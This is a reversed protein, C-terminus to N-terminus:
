AFSFPALRGDAGLLFCPIGDAYSAGFLAAGVVDSGRGLRIMQQARERLAVLQGVLLGGDPVPLREPTGGDVIRVLQPEKAWKDTVQRLSLVGLGGALAAQECAREAPTSGPTIVTAQPRKRALRTVFARATRPDLAGGAMLVLPGDARVAARAEAAALAAEGEPGDALRALMAGHCPADPNKATRCWCGLTKGRLEHLRSMRRPDSRVDAECAAIAEEVSGVVYRAATGPKHSYLNQWLSPQGLWSGRGIYVDFPALKCHVVSTLV